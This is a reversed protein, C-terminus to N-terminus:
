VQVKYSQIAYDASHWVSLHLQGISYWNLLCITIHLIFINLSNNFSSITIIPQQKHRALNGYHQAIFTQQKHYYISNISASNPSIHLWNCKCCATTLVKYHRQRPSARRSCASTPVSAPSTSSSSSLCLTETAGFRGTVTCFVLRTSTVSRKPFNSM